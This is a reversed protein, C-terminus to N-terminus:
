FVGFLKKRSKKPTQNELLRQSSNLTELIIKKEENVSEIQEKLFVIQGDKDALLKEFFNLKEELLSLDSSNSQQAKYADPFVRFFEAKDIVYSGAENRTASLKGRKILNQIHRTSFGSLRAAETTSIYAMSQGM